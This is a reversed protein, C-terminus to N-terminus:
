SDIVVTCMEVTVMMLAMVLLLHLFLLVLLVKERWYVRLAVVMELCMWGRLLLLLSVRLCVRDLGVGCEMLVVVTVLVRM